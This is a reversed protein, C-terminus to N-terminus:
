VQKKAGSISFLQRFDFDRWRIKDVMKIVQCFLYPSVSFIIYKVKEVFLRPKGKLFDKNILYQYRKKYLEGKQYSALWLNFIFSMMCSRLDEDEIMDFRKELAECYRMTDLFREKNKPNGLSIDLIKYIYHIFNSTVVSQASLYLRASWENDENIFIDEKFYLNKDVLFDRKIIPLWATSHFTRHSIQVKLFEEGRVSKNNVLPNFIYYRIKGNKVIKANSSIIEINPHQKIINTFIECSHLDLEDDADVFIVYDGTARRLGMNRASSLGGNAKHIVVIRSDQKAYEECIRPADDTSGDDVLIIEVNDYTQGLISEMCPTFLNEGRQYSINYIPVIISFKIYDM